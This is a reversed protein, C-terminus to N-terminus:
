LDPPMPIPVFSTAQQSSSSMVSQLQAAWEERTHFKAKGGLFETFDVFVERAFVQDNHDRVFRAVVDKVFEKDQQYISPSYPAM